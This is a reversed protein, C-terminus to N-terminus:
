CSSVSIKCLDSFTHGLVPVGGSRTYSCPDRFWTLGTIKQIYSQSLFSINQNLQLSMKKNNGTTEVQCVFFSLFQHFFIRHSAKFKLRTYPGKKYISLSTQGITSLTLHLDVQEATGLYNLSSCIHLSFSLQLISWCHSYTM